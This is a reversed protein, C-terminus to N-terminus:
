EFDFPANVLSVKIYVTSNNVFSGRTSYSTSSQNSTQSVDAAGNTTGLSVWKNIPAMLTTEIQQEGFQQSGPINQQQRIRRLTLQVQSGQLVPRVLLSTQIPHQQVVVASNFGFGVARVIPVQNDMSVLATEGNLVRVSQSPPSQFQPRTSYVVDASKHQLWNPDGQYVTVSFSVPPIDIQHLVRRIDTLTEPTVKLLLMHGSGSVLEGDTMLPKVLEIVNDAQVYHLKITKVVMTQALANTALFCLGIIWGRM